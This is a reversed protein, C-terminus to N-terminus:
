LRDIEPTVAAFAEVTAPAACTVEIVTDSVAAFTTALM